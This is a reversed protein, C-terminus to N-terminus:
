RQRPINESFITKQRKGALLKGLTFLFAAMIAYMCGHLLPMLVLAKQGNISSFPIEPLCCALFGPQVM